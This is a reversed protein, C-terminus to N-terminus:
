ADEAGPLHLPMEHVLDLLDIARLAHGDVVLVDLDDHALHQLPDRDDVRRICREKRSLEDLPTDELRLVAADYGFTSRRSRSTRLQHPDGLGAERCLRPQRSSGELLRGAHEGIGGNM